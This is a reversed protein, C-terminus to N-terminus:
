RSSFSVVFDYASPVPRCDVVATQYVSQRAAAISVSNLLASPSSGIRTMLIRSTADLSVLVHVLGTIGQQQAMPPTRPEAAKVVTTPVFPRVCAPRPLVGDDTAALVRAPEPPDHPGRPAVEAVIACSGDPLSPEYVVATIPQPTRVLVDEEAGANSNFRTGDGRSVRATWSHATAFLRVTGNLVPTQGVLRILTAPPDTTTAAYLREACETPVTPLPQADGGAPAGAAVMAMVYAIVRLRM